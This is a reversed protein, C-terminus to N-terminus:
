KERKKGREREGRCIFWCVYHFIDTWIHSRSSKFEMGGFLLHAEWSFVGGFAPLEPIEWRNKRDLLGMWGHFKWSDKIFFGGHITYKDWPKGMIKWKDSSKGIIKSSKGAVKPIGGEYFADTRKADNWGRDQVAGCLHSRCWCTACTSALRWPQVSPATFGNNKKFM